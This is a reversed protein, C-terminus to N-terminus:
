RGSFTSRIPRFGAVWRGDGAMSETVVSSILLDVGLSASQVLAAGRSVETLRALARLLSFRLAAPIAGRNINGVVPRVPGDM